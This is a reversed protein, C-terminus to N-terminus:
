KRPKSKKPELEFPNPDIVMSLLLVASGVLYSVGFIKSYFASDKTVKAYGAGCKKDQVDLWRQAQKLCLAYDEESEVRLTLRHLDAISRQEEPPVESDIAIAATYSAGILFEEASKKLLLTNGVGHGGKAVHYLIQYNVGSAFSQLSLSALRDQKRRRSDLENMFYNQIVFSALLIASGLVQARRKWIFRQSMSLNSM